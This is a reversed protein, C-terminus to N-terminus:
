KQEEDELTQKERWPKRQEYSKLEQELQDGIRDDNKGVELAKKSWKVATDFDGSEAYGAALTSLIHAQKYETLECAKTALEISRKADRINDEPSTALLWALNNLVHTNDPELKLAQEYDDRAGAHDGVRLRADARAQYALARKPDQKIAEGFADIAQRINGNTYYLMGLQLLTAVDKAEGENLRELDGIAEALKGSGALLTARARIAEPMNPAIKLASDVDKLAADTKGLQQYAAARLLLVEPQPTILTLAKNVDELAGQANGNLLRVRARYYYPSAAGPVAEITHTFAEEAQDYRKLTALALGQLEYLGPEEDEDALELAAKIDDLAKEAGNNQLLFTARAERADIDGPAAEVAADLDAKKKQPDDVIKARAVLAKARLGPEDEAIEIAASLAKIAKEKDGGPLSQLRGLLFQGQATRPTLEIARELDRQAMERLRILQQLQQADVPVGALVPRSLQAAREILTSALFSECFQKNPGSMGADLAKEALEIVETLERLSEAQLRKELAEDFYKQGPDDAKAATVLLAPILIWSWAMARM